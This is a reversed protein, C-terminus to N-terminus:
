GIRIKTAREVVHRSATKVNILESAGEKVLGKLSESVAAGVVAGAGAMFKRRTVLAALAAGGGGGVIITFANAFPEPIINYKFGYRKELREILVDLSRRLANTDFDDYWLELNGRQDNLVERLEMGDVKGLVEVLDSPYGFCIPNEQIDPLAALEDYAVQGKSFAASGPLDSIEVVDCNHQAAAVKNYARGYWSEITAFDDRAASDSNAKRAARCYVVVDTQLDTRKAVIENAARTGEETKMRDLLSQKSRDLLKLLNDRFSYQDQSPWTQKLLAHQKDLEIFTRWGTELREVDEKPVGFSVLLSPLETWHHLRGAPHRGLQDQVAKAIPESLSDLFVPKLRPSGPKKFTLFLSEEFTPRRFAFQIRDLPLAKILSQNTADLFFRGDVLDGDKVIVRRNIFSDLRLRGLYLKASARDGWSYIQSQTQCDYVDGFYRGRSNQM